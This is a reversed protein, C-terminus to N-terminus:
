ESCGGDSGAPAPRRAVDDRGGTLGETDQGGRTPAIEKLMDRAITLDPALALATKLALRAERLKGTAALSEGLCLHALPFNHEIGVTQLAFDVSREYDGQLLAVRALGCMAPANTPDVELLSEYSWRADELKGLQLHTTGFAELLRPDAPHTKQLQYLTYIAVSPEGRALQLRSRLIMVTPDAHLAEDLQDLAEECERWEAAQYHCSALQHLYTQVRPHTKGDGDDTQGEEILQRWIPIADRFRLSSTLALALNTRQDRITRAVTVRTDEDPAEVYGLEVLQRISEASAVPDERAEDSHMGDNGTVEEWTPLYAPPETKTFVEAWPRGDMDRGIPLGFSHLVTPAVDLLTAGYLREGRRINPGAVCVVGYPRHWGVPDEYGNPGPRADGSAFGHDSVLMVTTEDADCRKLLSRLMLDHFRYCGEMVQGYRRADAESVSELKPPQYPMFHHGFQDIGSYYVAMFDWPQDQILHSAAAHVSSNKAILTALKALRDDQQQDIEAADPVFPVLSDGDLMDATVHLRELFDGISTPHFTGEPFGRKKRSRRASAAEYRDTVVAGNIAEAPHSAFWNIVISSLNNQSLINWVAKCTRSTSTVPRIGTADPTPEVFGLVGHKDARKGTAASNWLMPSLIPRITALNGWVGRDMLGRLAPLKGADLLPRIMQWDAADWGILLLKSTQRNAM